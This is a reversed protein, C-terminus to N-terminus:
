ARSTHHIDGIVGIREWMDRDLVTAHFDITVTAMLIRTTVESSRGHVMRHDGKFRTLITVITCMITRIRSMNGRCLRRSVKDGGDGRTGRTMLAGTGPRHAHAVIRMGATVTERASVAALFYCSTRFTMVIRRRIRIDRCERIGTGHVIPCGARRTVVTLTYTLM